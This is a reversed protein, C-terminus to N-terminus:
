SKATTKELVVLMSDIARPLKTLQDVPLNLSKGYDSVVFELSRLQFKQDTWGLYWAWDTYYLWSRENFARRHTPDQWAGWSLDYPVHIHMLGGPRLLHLCNTMARVLDSVHELVDMAIIRDFMDLDVQWAGQRTVVTSGWPVDTIDMIWDANVDSRIDANVCDERWDKGSGLNLTNISLSVM